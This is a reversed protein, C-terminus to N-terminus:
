RASLAIKQECFPPFVLPLRLSFFPHLSRSSAKSLIAHIAHVRIWGWTRSVFACNLTNPFLYFLFLSPLGLLCSVSSSLHYVHATIWHWIRTSGSNRQRAVIQQWHTVLVIQSSLCSHIKVSIEWLTRWGRNRPAKWRTNHLDAFMWICHSTTDQVTNETWKM